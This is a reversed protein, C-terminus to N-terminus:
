GSCIVCYVHRLLHNPGSILDRGYVNHVSILDSILDRDHLLQLQLAM